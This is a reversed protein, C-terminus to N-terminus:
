MWCAYEGCQKQMWDYFELREEEPQEFFEERTTIDAMVRKQMRNFHTWITNWEKPEM